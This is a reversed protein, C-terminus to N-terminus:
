GSLAPLVHGQVSMTRTSHELTHLFAREPKAPPLEASITCTSHEVRPSIRIRAQASAVRRLSRARRTSLSATFYSNRSRQVFGGRLDHRASLRTARPFIRVGAAASSSGEASIARTSRKFTHRFAFNANGCHVRQPSRVPRTSLRSAFHRLALKAASTYSNDFNITAIAM